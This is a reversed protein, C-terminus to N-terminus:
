DPSNDVDYDYMATNEKWMTVGNNFIDKFRKLDDTPITAEVFEGTPVIGRVNVDITEVYTYYPRACLNPVQMKNVAYGYMTFFNDVSEAFDRKVLRYFFSFKNRKMATILNNEGKGLKTENANFSAQYVSNITNMIGTVGHAVSYAGGAGLTAAGLAISGVNALTDTVIGVSNRALWMKYTDTTTACQPFGGLPLRHFNFGAGDGNVQKYRNPFLIISPSASIDGCMFFGINNPDSFDERNLIMDQGSGNSVVVNAFPSTWLKNNKPVYGDFTFARASFDITIPTERHSATAGIEGQGVAEKYVNTITANGLCFKPILTVFLICDGNSTTIDQIFTDLILPDTFYYLVVGQYIGCHQKGLTSSNFYKESAGVLYGWEGLNEDSLFHYTYDSYKFQEPVVNDGIEDTESHQRVVFSSMIELDFCYTQWVDTEIFLKTMGENIYVMNTIFAFIRKGTGNQYFVYNCGWYRLTEIDEDVRIYSLVSGDPQKERVTLYDTFTWKERSNFYNLQKQPSSFIYQHKYSNDFPVNCLKITTNPQFEM